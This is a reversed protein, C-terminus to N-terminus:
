SAPDPGQPAPAPAGVELLHPRGAQSVMGKAFHEDPVRSTITHVTWWDAQLRDAAIDLVVYGRDADVWRLHPRGKLVLAKRDRLVDGEGFGNPSTVAPTVIEVGVAGRGTAPDYGDGKYPDKVLDYAWSSHVDGTLVVLNTVGIDAVADFVRDRAARYGEWNDGSGAPAGRPAQPAFM